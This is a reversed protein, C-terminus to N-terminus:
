FEAPPQLERFTKQLASWVNYKLEEDIFAIRSSIIQMVAMTTAWM